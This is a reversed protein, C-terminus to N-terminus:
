LAKQLHAHKRLPNYPYKQIYIFHLNYLICNCQAHVKLKNKFLMYLLEVVFNMKIILILAVLM